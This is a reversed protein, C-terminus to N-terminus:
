TSVELKKIQVNRPYEEEQYEEVVNYCHFVEEVPAIFRLENYLDKSSNIKNKIVHLASEILPTDDEFSFTKKFNQTLEEWDITGRCV